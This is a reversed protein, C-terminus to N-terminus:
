HYADTFNENSLSGGSTVTIHIGYGSSPSTQTYRSPLIQRIITAGAPVSSLSYAGTSGTTTSLEGSDLKGNNNTDLFITVAAIGAGASTRVFGGVSGKNSTTGPVTDIFNQNSLSAGNTVTIHIGLGGSPTTQKDGTPLIQRIITAGASVGSFTYAGTAGTATSLEGVDLKGNNNSDLYITVGAVGTGNSTKASGSVSGINAGPVASVEKSLASESPLPPTLAANGNVASVEYYYKTGNTVSTDKYTASVIGAAFPSASEGGPTLSRYVNYSVAGMVAPWTLTVAGNGATAVPVPAATLTTANVGAFDNYGSTNVAEVHYEYYNGPTVTTDSWGYASPATRSTPPLSAAVSFTGHNVARLINYGSATHGANDTWVIDIENTTVDTISQDTPKNPALPITVSASNSDGSDGASDFARLQYYYTSGPALGTMVDAFSAPSAPLTETILNQTFGSDTARDLHYGTQNTANNTWVLNVSTATAPTAGLGSPANPSTTASPSYTWNLISQVAVSGGTGATFGAYASNGGVTGAINVAYTETVSKQTKTDTIVETLTAGDYALNVAFLDGSHLDIGTSTLDHTNSVGAPAAGDTFLGTSDSGEGSNNALDFTVAISNNIGGGAGGSPLKGYGLGGGYQGVATPAANQLTFTFGDGTAAGGSLQFSFQTTFSTIDIPTEYFASTAENKGGDTLELDGANVSAKSNLQLQTEGFFGSSFDIGAAQNTTTAMAAMSFPSLGVSNKGAIEFSYTTLPQLGGIAISVAGAPATAIQTFPGGNVSEDILYVSPKNPAATSDNWTLNISSGSLAAASLVPATPAQQPAENLGYVVLSNATGVYVQGNVVTPQAFKVVAGLNDGAVDNSNWLETSLTSADYAHIENSNRDMLWVIGNTVGDSSVIPGGSEFGLSTLATQSSAVLQGTSSLSFERAYSNYGSSLYVQGNFYTPTSLTGGIINPPTNNGSSNPVSNFAADGSSSYKGLNDRDLVYVRGDKGGAMLLNTHGAIGASAPLLLPAGSGFDSDAADMAAVNYPIFYDAVKLGWGNPGQNAASTTPDSVAKVVAENYDALTPFGNPNLAPAGNTGNGTMFYFASNDPEFALAGGSQWIGDEGGNPSTCLVGSLKFGSTKINAVNWTVVWGHYPGNDGHSAFSVYVTNNVLSLAVRNFERLANFQVVQKGTANYPDTVHGDGSGYAYIQTTNTNGSTTEGILYPTVADTGDSINIARLRQVFYTKGGVVEKTKAEVYLLGNAPDIVPTSTIGIGTTVDGTGIDSNTVVAISTAGLTNNINGGSNVTSLFNRKWLVQGGGADADIAYVTDNETAVFVVNHVGAAGAATNVGAKITVGSEVLPEAYVQGDLPVSYLKGFTGSKVNTPALQVEANNVGDSLNDYRYTLVSASLILRPELREAVAAAASGRTPRRFIAASRISSM